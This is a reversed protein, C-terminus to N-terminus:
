MYELMKEFAEVSMDHAELCPLDPSENNGELFGVTRSIRAKFYESRSALIVQHCRFVREDVKVILDARDGDYSNRRM